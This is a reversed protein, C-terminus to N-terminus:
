KSKTGDKAPLSGARRAGTVAAGSPSGGVRFKVKTHTASIKAQRSEGTHFVDASRTAPFCEPRLRKFRKSLPDPALHAEQCTPMYLPLAGDSSSHLGRQCKSTKAEGVVHVPRSRDRGGAEM